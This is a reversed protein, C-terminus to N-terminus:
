ASPLFAQVLSMIYLRDRKLTKDSKCVCVCVCVLFLYKQTKGGLDSKRTLLTAGPSYVFAKRTVPHQSM